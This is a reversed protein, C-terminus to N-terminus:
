IGQELRALEITDTLLEQKVKELIVKAREKEEPTTLPSSILSHCGQEERELLSISVRLGVIRLHLSRADEM